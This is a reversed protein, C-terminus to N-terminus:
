IHKEMQRVKKKLSKNFKPLLLSQDLFKFNEGTIFILENSIMKCHRNLKFYLLDKFTPISINNDQQNDQKYIAM